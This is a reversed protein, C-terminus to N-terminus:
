FTNENKIKEMFFRFVKKDSSYRARLDKHKRTTRGITHFIVNDNDKVWLGGTFHWIWDDGFFISMSDPMLPIKSIFNKNITFAWGIRRRILIYRKDIVSKHSSYLDSKINVTFPCVVPYKSNDDLAEQTKSFFDNKIIVDDNLLMLNSNKIAAIKLAHNWVANVGINRGLNFVHFKENPINYNNETNNFIFIKEVSSFDIEKTRSLLDDLHNLYMTPIAVIM